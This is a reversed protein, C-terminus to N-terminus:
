DILQDIYPVLNQPTAELGPAPEPEQPEPQPESDPVLRLQDESQPPSVDHLPTRHVYNPDTNLQEAQEQNQGEGDVGTSAEPEPEGEADEEGIPLHDM